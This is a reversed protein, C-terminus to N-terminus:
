VRSKADFYERRLGRLGKRPRPHRRRKDREPGASSCAVRHPRPPLIEALYHASLYEGRNTMSEFSTSM